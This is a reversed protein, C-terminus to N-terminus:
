TVDVDPAPKYVEANVAHYSNHRATVGPMHHVTNVVVMYSLM